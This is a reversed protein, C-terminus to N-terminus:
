STVGLDPFLKRGGIAVIFGSGATPSGTGIASGGIGTVEIGIKGGQAFVQREAGTFTGLGGTNNTVTKTAFQGTGSTFPYTPYFRITISQTPIIISGAPPLFDISWTLAKMPIVRIFGKIGISDAERGFNAQTGYDPVITPDIGAKHPLQLQGGEDTFEETLAFMPQGIQFDVDSSLDPNSGDSQQGYIPTAQPHYEGASYSAINNAIAGLSHMYTVVRRIANGESILEGTTLTTKGTDFSYRVATIYHEEINFPAPWPLDETAIVWGAQIMHVPYGQRGSPYTGSDVIPSIALVDAGCLEISGNGPRRSNFRDMHLDALDQADADGRIENDLSVYKDIDNSTPIVAHSRPGTAPSIKRKGNGYRITSQNPSDTMMYLDHVKVTEGDWTCNLRPVPDIYRLDLVPVGDLERVFWQLPTSFGAFWSVIEQWVSYPAQGNYDRTEQTLQLGIFSEWTGQFIQQCMSLTDSFVDAIPTGKPWLQKGNTPTQNGDGWDKKFSCSGNPHGHGYATVQVAGDDTFEFDQCLGQWLIVDEDEDRIQLVYGYDPVRSVEEETEPDVALTDCIALKCDYFGGPAQDTYECHLDDDDTLDVFLDGNPKYVKISAWDPLLTM